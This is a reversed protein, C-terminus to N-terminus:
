LAKDLADIRRYAHQVAVCQREITERSTPPIMGNLADQYARQAAHEGREAESVIAHDHDGPVLGKLNMWGRHLAGASTGESAADGGLRQAHPLLDAAFQGRQTALETFLTKLSPEKVYEAAARFGREGDKCIEILHNLVGRETREAM